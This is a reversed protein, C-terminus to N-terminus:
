GGGRGALTGGPLVDFATVDGSQEHAVLMQREAELLVVSRPSVGGSPLHQLLGLTEGGDWRFTAISDHGRNTVYVRDGAANLSM